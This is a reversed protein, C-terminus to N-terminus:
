NAIERITDTNTMWTTLVNQTVKFEVVHSTNLLSFSSKNHSSNKKDIVTCKLLKSIVGLLICNHYNTIIYYIRITYNPRTKKTAANIYSCTYKLLIIKIFLIHSNFLNLSTQM